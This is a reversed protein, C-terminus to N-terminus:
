AKKENLPKVITEIDNIFDEIYDGCASGVVGGIIAGGIGMSVKEFATLNEPTLSKVIVQATQTGTVMGVVAGVTKAIEFGNM